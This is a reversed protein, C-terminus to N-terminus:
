LAALAPQGPGGALLVIVGTRPATAPVRQVALAISGVAPDARDFPVRVGIEDGDLSGLSVYMTGASFVGDSNAGYILVVEDARQRAWALATEVDRWEGQEYLEEETVVDTIYGSYEDNAARGIYARREHRNSSL